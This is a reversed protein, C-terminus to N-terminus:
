GRVEPAPRRPGAVVAMEHYKTPLRDDLIHDAIHDTLVLPAKDTFM